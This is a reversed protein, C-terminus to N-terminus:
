GRLRLPCHAAVGGLRCAFDRDGAAGQEQSLSEVLVDGDMQCARAISYSMKWEALLTVSHELDERYTQFAIQSDSLVGERGKGKGEFTEVLENSDDLHLQLILGATGIDMDAFVNMTTTTNSQIRLLITEFIESYRSSQLLPGTQKSGDKGGSVEPPVFCVFIRAFISEITQRRGGASRLLAPLPVLVLRSMKICSAQVLKVLLRSMELDLGNSSFRKM